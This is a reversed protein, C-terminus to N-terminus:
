PWNLRTLDRFEEYSMSDMNRALEIRKDILKRSKYDNSFIRNLIKLDLVWGTQEKNLILNISDHIQCSLNTLESIDNWNISENKRNFDLHGVHTHRIERIRLNTYKSKAEKLKLLYEKVSFESQDIKKLVLNKLKDFSYDQNPEYLKYLNLVANNRIVHYLFWLDKPKEDDVAKLYKPFNILYELSKLTEHILYVQQRLKISIESDINKNM